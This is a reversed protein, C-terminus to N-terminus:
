FNYLNAPEYLLMSTYSGKSVIVSSAFPGVLLCVHPNM